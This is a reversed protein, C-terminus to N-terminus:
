WLFPTERREHYCSEKSDWLTVESNSLLNSISLGKHWFRCWRHYGLWSLDWNRPIYFTNRFCVSFTSNANSTHCLQIRFRTESHVWTSITQYLISFQMIKRDTVKGGSMWVTIIRVGVISWIREFCLRCVVHGNEKKEHTKTKNIM